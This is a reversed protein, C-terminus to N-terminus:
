RAEAVNMIAKEIREGPTLARLDPILQVLGSFGTQIFGIDAGGDFLLKMRKWGEDGGETFHKEARPAVVIVRLHPNSELASFIPESLHDDKFGFGVVLLCSNAQRLAALFHAILELHPQRFSLRFKQQTPYVLCANAAQVAPNIVVGSKDTQAWDVSGHLKFYQFVGPVYNPGDSTLANRRIVDYDFFRPDFRRPNSFSFGDIAVLGLEGAARDFCLDYNTTFIKLRTDRARRRALRRLFEKHPGLLQATDGGVARCLQLITEIAASRFNAVEADDRNVQLQADCRSLLEEINREGEAQGYKLRDLVNAADSKSKLSVCAEWLQPMSPGGAELSSGSGALVLLHQMQLSTLLFNALRDDQEQQPTQELKGHLQRWDHLGPLLFRVLDSSTM